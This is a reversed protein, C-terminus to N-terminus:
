FTYIIGTNIKNKTLLQTYGNLSNKLPTQYELFATFHDTFVQIKGNGFLVTGGTDYHKFPLENSYLATEDMQAHEIYVGTSLRVKFRKFSLDSFLNLTGNTVAGYRYDEADLGNRKHNVNATIGAFKWKVTYAIFVLADWSGTGPQLDLNPIGNTYELNTKGLPFKLGAGISLRQKLAGSLADQKTNFVQYSEMIIPDGIGTINYRRYDGIQQLNNVMPLIVSTKWKERIYFSGRLEYTFYKEVVKEGWFAMDNGHGAHRTTIMEGLLNYEGYMERHRMFIGISNKYDNPSLNLYVNCNDCAFSLFPFWLLISM